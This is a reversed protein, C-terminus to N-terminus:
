IFFVLPITKLIHETGGPIKYNVDPVLYSTYTVNKKKKKRGM